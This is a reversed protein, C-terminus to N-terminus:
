KLHSAARGPERASESARLTEPARLADPARLAEAPRPPHAAFAPPQAVLTLGARSALAATSLHREHLDRDLVNLIKTKLQAFVAPVDASADITEFKYEASLRDFEALLAAQYNCFSDYMDLGPYLDMGSEWYDFGRSLVVRPVLQDIGLRLYFIADPKLAVGFINRIWRPDM